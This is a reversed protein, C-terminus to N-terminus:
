FKVVLGINLAAVAADDINEGHEKLFNQVQEQSTASTNNKADFAATFARTYSFEFNLGVNKNFLLEAGLAATGTFNNGSVKLDDEDTSNYCYYQNGYYYCGNGNNSLENELELSARNYAAGISLYPRFRSTTFFFKSQAGVSLNKYKVELDEYFSSNVSSLYTDTDSFDMSTYGVRFGISIRESLMTEIALGTDVNANFSDIEDSSYVKGGVYPIVKYLQEDEKKVEPMPAVIRQPAAQVTDINDYRQSNDQSNDQDMAQLNGQFASKLKNALEHEQKIRIDEIKKQVMQENQQELQKRMKAVRDSASEKRFTGDIDIQESDLIEETQNMLYDDQQAFSLTSFSAMALLTIVKADRKMFGKM